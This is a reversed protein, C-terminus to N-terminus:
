AVLYALPLYVCKGALSISRNGFITNYSWFHGLNIIMLCPLFTGQESIKIARWGSECEGLFDNQWKSWGGHRVNNFYSFLLKFLYVTLPPCNIVFFYIRANNKDRNVLISNENEVYFVFASFLLINQKLILMMCNLCEISRLANPCNQLWRDEKKKYVIEFALMVKMFQFQKVLFCETNECSINVMNIAILM